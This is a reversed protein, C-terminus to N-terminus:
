TDDRDVPIWLVLMSTNSIYYSRAGVFCFHGEGRKVNSVLAGVSNIYNNNKVWCRCRLNPIDHESLKNLYPKPDPRINVPDSGFETDLNLIKKVGRVWDYSLKKKFLYCETQKSKYWPDPDLKQLRIRTSFNPYRIRSGSLFVPDSQM